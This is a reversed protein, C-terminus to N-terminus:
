SCGDPGCTEGTVGATVMALPHAEQWAQDLANTFLEAPQAGSIGYKRDIVFFPVGNIGIARAEAIDQRVEAAFRDSGLTARVDSEALGAAVGIGVLVETDGTDQGHEFHASLLAEKVTDGCGESRALHLLRHADFSNAVKLSDFDYSLGEAAAVGTIHDFMGTVQQQSMGKVKSLYELETGAYHDPLGPDLQYSKWTVEVDDKHAFGDLAAEFRRKGIFCWPCSVDSWIEVQM